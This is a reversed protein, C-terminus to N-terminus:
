DMHRRQQVGTGNGDRLRGILGTIVIEHFAYDSSRASSSDITEISIVDLGHGSMRSVHTSSAFASSGEASMLPTQTGREWFRPNAQAGSQTTGERMRELGRKRGQRRSIRGRGPKAEHRRENQQRREDKGQEMQQRTTRTHRIKRGETADISNTEAAAEGGGGSRQTTAESMTRQLCRRGVAMMFPTRQCVVGCIPITTGSLCSPHRVVRGVSRAIVVSSVNPRRRERRTEATQTNHLRIVDRRGSAAEAAIQQVTRM